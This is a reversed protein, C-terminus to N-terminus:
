DKPTKWTEEAERMILERSMSAPLAESRIDDFAIAFKAVLSRDKITQGEIADIYMTDPKGTSGAIMFAGALGLHAGTPSSVVQVTICSRRSMDTVHALQQYTIERSGIMRHLVSQDLVVALHPSPQRDFIRQRTIRKDVEAELMEDSLDAQSGLFLARAYDPTQLLGPIILPQWIRLTAAEDEAKMWADAWQPYISDTWSEHEAWFRTFFGNM